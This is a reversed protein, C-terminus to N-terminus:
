SGSNSARAVERASELLLKAVPTLTRRKMTIIGISLRSQPLEVPLIKLGFQAANLQLVARPMTAVYRGTSLLHTRMHLSYAELSAQPVERGVGRFAAALAAATPTGPPTM